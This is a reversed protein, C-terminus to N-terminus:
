GDSSQNWDVYVVNAKKDSHLLNEKVDYMWDFKTKRAYGDILIYTKAGPDFLTRSVNKATVCVTDVSATHM